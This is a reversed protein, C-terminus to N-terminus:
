RRQAALEALMANYAAFEDDGARDKRKAERDDARSWQLLLAVMVIVMPVEGSAWAIAGGLRQDALLDGVWPLSLYRYFTEAIVTQSNMVIVGFFAHFPMVAFLMGLRVLHPLPRPPRDVGIVLWYFLYGTVLFHVNMLQHGWHYQMAEGFLGSFYLVYFSGVFLVAAIAPHGFLRAARSHVVAVLWERPGSVGSRGSAPLVRLALTIPGGLVLLVPALMNLTMHAVMHLSFTGPAYRGLGSSTVVLVAAWGACWAVVRGAPWVDGRRRLRRAGLVYAVTAAVAITGLVLDFRWGAVLAALSPAVDLDYGLITEHVSPPASLFSPLVLHTLGLSAGLSTGLLLAEALLLRRRSVASGGRRRRVVLLVGLLAAFVAVHVVLLSGYGTSGLNQPRAGTFGAVAGSVGVVVACPLVLRDYRALVRSDITGGPGGRRQQALLAVLAGVWVSAAPVHWVLANTMVDHWSGVAAHGVVVPPLLGVVALACAGVTSRWRLAVRCVASVAAAFVAVVLWAKAEEVADITGFLAPVSLLTGIPQGAADAASLPVALVAAVTWVLGALGALRAAAWADAVLAGTGRSPVVFAAFALAGVCVVGAGEALLRVVAFTYSTLPGPETDGLPGYVDGGLAVTALVVVLGAAAGLLLGASLRARRGASETRANM